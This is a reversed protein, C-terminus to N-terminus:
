EKESELFRITQLCKLFKTQTVVKTLMDAANENTHIKLVEVEQKEIQEIIFYFKIDMHKTRVTISNTRPCIFPLKTIM